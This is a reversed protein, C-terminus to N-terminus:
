AYKLNQIVVKDSSVKGIKARFLELKIFKYLCFTTYTIAM